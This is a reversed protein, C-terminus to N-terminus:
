SEEEVIEPEENYQGFSSAQAATVMGDVVFGILWGLGGGAIVGLFVIARGSGGFNNVIMWVVAVAAGGWVGVNMLISRWRTSPEPASEQYASKRIDPINSNPGDPLTNFQSM